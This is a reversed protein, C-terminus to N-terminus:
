SRTSRAAGNGASLEVQLQALADKLHQRDHSNALAAAGSGRVNRRRSEDLIKAIEAESLLFTRGPRAPRLGAEHVRRRLTKPSIGLEKAVEALSRLPEM